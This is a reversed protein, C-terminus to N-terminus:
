EKYLTYSVDKWKLAIGKQPNTSIDLKGPGTRKSEARVVMVLESIVEGKKYACPKDQANPILLETLRGRHLDHRDVLIPAGSAQFDIRLRKDINAWNGSLEVTRTKEGTSAVVMRGAKTYLDRNGRQFAGFPENLFGVTGTRWSSLQVDKLATLRELYIVTDPELLYFAIKQRVKGGACDLDTYVAPKNDLEHTVSRVVPNRPKEGKEVVQGVFGSTYPSCLFDEGRLAVEGMVQAGWSFSAMMRPTRLCLFKGTAFLRLGNHKRDFEKASSAKPPLGCMRHLMYNYALATSISQQASPFFWEGDFYIQGTKTRAQMAELTDLCRSALLTADVDKLVHSTSNWTYSWDPERHLRWDQGNPYYYCGNDLSFYKLNDFIGQLNHTVYGPFPNRAWSYFFFQSLSLDAASMYDPHIRRHNELTFDSHINPGKIRAKLHPYDSLGGPQFDEARLFSSLTWIAATDKWAAHQPHNPFMNCALAILQANWANEEAKTDNFVGAPPTKGVFRNAEHEVMSGIANKLQDDLHPWIIWAAFGTQAAWYASQWQDGWRKGDSCTWPGTNHTLALRRIIALTEKKLEERGTGVVDADFPGFVYLTAFASATHSNPRVGHENSKWALALTDPHKPDPKLLSRLFCCQKILANYIRLSDATEPHTPDPIIPVASYREPLVGWSWPALLLVALLSIFLRSM